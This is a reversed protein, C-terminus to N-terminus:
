IIRRGPLTIDVGYSIPYVRTGAGAGNSVAYTFAGRVFRFLSRLNVDVPPAAATHRVSFSSVLNPLRQVPNGFPTLKLGGDETLHAVITVNQEDLLPTELTIVPDDVNPDAGTLFVEILYDGGPVPVPGEIQTYMFNDLLLDGNVYIDVDAGPVGHAVYVDAASVAPLAALSAVLLIIFPRLM